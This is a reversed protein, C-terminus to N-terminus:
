VPCNETSPSVLLLSFLNEELFFLFRDNQVNEAEKILNGLVQNRSSEWENHALGIAWVGGTPALL